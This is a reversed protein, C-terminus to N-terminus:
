VHRAYEGQYKNRAEQAFLDALEIDDFRALRVPKKNIRISVCWKESSKDWYVNKFGSKNKAPTKANYQNQQNTAARLNEIRNDDKIGNIHDVYEPFYGYHMAFIVRHSRMQKGKVFVINYGTHHKYEAHGAFQGSKRYLSGERYEFIENLTEPSFDSM